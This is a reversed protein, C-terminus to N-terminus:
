GNLIGKIQKIEDAKTIISNPHEKVFQKFKSYSSSKKKNPIILQGKIEVWKDYDELYFDPTYVEGNSLTFVQPEYKWKINEKDFIQAAKLEYSSKFYIGAYFYKGNNYGKQNSLRNGEAINRKIKTSRKKGTREESMKKLYECNYKTKGLNSKPNNISRLINSCKSSCGQIFNLSHFVKFTKGCVKCKKTEKGGRYHANLSGRKSLRTFLEDTDLIDEARVDIQKKNRWVPIIHNPTCVIKKNNQLIIEIVEGNYNDEKVFDVEQKGNENVIFDGSKINEINKKYYQKSKRWMLIKTEKTLCNFDLLYINDKFVEGSPYSVYGGGIRLGDSFTDGYKEEWAMEKCIAKYAFGAISSTLYVKKAVDVENLFPKLGSFYAEVWEYLKRTVDIDRETYEIVTKTEEATWLKRQFISYDIKQKGSDEDVIGLMKTIYDLSYEMLLDGLMGKEIKMQSARTKIIKNLDIIIKYKLSIGERELIPNDYKKNYFGVLFKHSDIIKQIEAKDKLLYTKKTKYSYCGFIRLRDKSPDPKGSFTLSEIDM